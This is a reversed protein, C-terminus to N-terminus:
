LWGAPLCLSPLSLDHVREQRISWSHREITRVVSVVVWSLLLTVTSLQVIHPCDIISVAFM